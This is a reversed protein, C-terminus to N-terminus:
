TSLSVPGKEGQICRLDSRAMSKAITSLFERDRDVQALAFAQKERALRAEESVGPAVDPTGTL